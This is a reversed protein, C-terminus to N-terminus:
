ESLFLLLALLGVRHCRPVWKLRSDNLIFFGVIHKWEMNWRVELVQGEDIAPRIAYHRACVIRSEWRSLVMRLALVVDDDLLDDLRTAM